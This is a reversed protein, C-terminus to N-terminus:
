TLSSRKSNKWTKIAHLFLVPRVNYSKLLVEQTSLKLGRKRTIELVTNLIMDKTIKPKPPM